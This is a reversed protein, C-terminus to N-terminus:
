AAIQVWGPTQSTNIINWNPNSLTATGGVLRLNAVAPTIVRGTLVSPAIGTLTVTGVSPTVVNGTVAISPASGLLLSTGTPTIVESGV